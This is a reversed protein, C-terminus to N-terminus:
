KWENAQKLLADCAVESILGVIRVLRRTPVKGSQRIASVERQIQRIRRAYVSELGRAQLLQRLLKAVADLERVKM